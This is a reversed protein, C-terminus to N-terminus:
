LDPHLNISNIPNKENFTISLPLFINLKQQECAKLYFILIYIHKGAQVRYGIQLESMTVSQGNELMVRASSPFCNGPPSAATTSSPPSASTTTTTTPSGTCCHFTSGCQAFCHTPCSLVGFYTGWAPSIGTIQPTHARSCQYSSDEDAQLSFYSGTRVPTCTCVPCQLEPPITPCVTPPPCTPPPPPPPVVQQFEVFCLFYM